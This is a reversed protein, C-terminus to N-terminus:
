GMNYEVFFLAHTPISAILVKVTVKVIIQADRSDSRPRHCDLFNVWLFSVSVSRIYSSASVCLVCPEAEM